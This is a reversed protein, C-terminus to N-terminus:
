TGLVYNLNVRLAISDGSEFPFANAFCCEYMNVDSDANVLMFGTLLKAGTATFTHGIVLEGSGDPIVFAEYAFQQTYTIASYSSGGDTSSVRGKAPVTSTTKGRWGLNGANEARVIIAFQAGDNIHTGAGLLILRWEDTGLTNGNTTGSCLDSAGIEGGIYTRIGVTVTGPSGASKYFRIRVAKITFGSGLSCYTIQGEWDTNSISAMWQSDYNSVASLGPAVIDADVIQFGSDTCKTGGPSAYTSTQAATCSGELGVIKKICSGTADGAASMRLAHEALGQNPTTQTLAM